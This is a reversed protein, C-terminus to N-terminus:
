IYAPEDALPRGAARARHCAKCGRSGSKSARINRGAYPHGWPCETKARREAVVGLRGRSWNTVADVMELHDPNFCRRHTCTAGGSCGTAANHCTHDVTDGPQLSEGSAAEWALRHLLVGATPYGVPSGVRIYGKPQPKWATALWCGEETVTMTARATAMISEVSRTSRKPRPKKVWDRPHCAACYTSRSDIATGCDPCRNTKSRQYSCRSCRTSNNSTVFHDGCDRCNREKTAM